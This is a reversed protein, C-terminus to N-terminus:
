RRVIMKRTATYDGAHITYFYIDSAVEEGVENTGDWHAAESRDIYSGSPRHGLDLTRVVQGSINHIRVTVDTNEALQYPIWTDPNFPNPFNQLMQTKTVRSNFILRYLLNKVALFDPDASPNGEMISYIRELVPIYEPDVRRPERPPVATPVTTMGFHKAVLIVDRMDVKGDYNVDPNPYRPIEMDEGLYSGVFVIDRVDVVGDDNVDVKIGVNITRAVSNTNEGGDTVTLTVTYDGTRTYSHVVIGGITTSGDGFEWRYYLIDGNPDYSSFADFTVEERIMPTEPSQAFSAVPVVVDAETAGILIVDLPETSISLSMPLSARLDIREYSGNKNQYITYLKDPDLKTQEAEITLVFSVPDHSVNTLVYGVDGNPSKWLSSLVSPYVFPIPQDPSYPFATCGSNHFMPVDIDPQRLMRGYVLFPQAYTSRAEVIRKLYEARQLDRVVDLETIKRGSHSTNPVGGWVLAMAFGRICNDWCPYFDHFFSSGSRILAYDHYVTHWLPIATVNSIDNYHSAKPIWFTSTNDSFSDFVPIYPESLWESSLVADPNSNREEVKISEFINNYATYWWNGGGPTHEHTEDVCLLPRVPFADLQVEDVGSGFLTLLFESLKDAWFSTDPCMTYYTTAGGCSEFDWAKHEGSEYVVAYPEAEPWSPLMSSYANVNPYVLVYNGQEHVESITNEFADWGEKPPFPEPYSLYWWPSEWGDWRVVVPSNMYQSMDQSVDPLHSFTTPRGICENTAVDEYLGMDKLWQPVDSREVLNGKSTWPQQVAWQRYIQAADYWDGSFVGVASSYPLELDSGVLYPPTNQVWLTLLNEQGYADDKGIGPSKLYGLSDEAAMYLGSGRELSYYACFQMTCMGSPYDAVMGHKLTHFPDKILLGSWSPFAIYDDEPDSSIQGAGRIFPFNVMKIFGDKGNKIDIKWHTLPDGSRIEISVTVQSGGLDWPFDSWSLTLIAGQPTFESDYSLSGAGRGDAALEYDMQYYLVWPGKWEVSKHSIFDVGMLKDIISYLQGDQRQFVLEIRDNGAYIYQDDEVVYASNQAYSNDISAFNLLLALLFLLATILQSTRCMRFSSSVIEQAWASAHLVYM